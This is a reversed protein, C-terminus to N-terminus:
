CPTDDKEMEKSKAKNNKNLTAKKYVGYLQSTNKLGSQCERDKLQHM